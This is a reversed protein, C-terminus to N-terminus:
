RFSQIHYSSARALRSGPVLVACLTRDQFFVPSPTAPALKRVAALRAGKNM